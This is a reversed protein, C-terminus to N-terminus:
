SLPYAIRKINLLHRYSVNDSTSGCGQTGCGLTWSLQLNNNAGICGLTAPTNILIRSVDVIRAYEQIAEDNNSHMVATHGAGENNLIGAATRLAQEQNQIRSLSVLPLLKEKMLPHQITDDTDVMSMDAVMLKIPYDRKIGLGECVDQASKGVYDSNLSGKAFLAETVAHLEFHNLVAAGAEIAYEVFKDFIADDVLLNNESGCVVGNDFSKSFVVDKAAKEVDCSQEIWVPANGKGVGIAPTGSQYASAVMSPGGTALIFNLDPHRMFGQTLERSSPMQSTQILDVPLGLEKLKAQMVKVAKLGVNKARRHSSIIVANRSKLAILSKFVLTEVPNTVPIMAFVIGMSQAIGKVGDKEEIVSGVGPQGILDHAVALTGLKIKEVKHEVVGMGSEAVTEKAFTDADDAIVQALAEIAEDIRSELLPQIDLYAQKAKSIMFDVEKIPSSALASDILPQQMLEQPQTLSLMVQEALQTNQTILGLLADRDLVFAHTHEVAVMNVSAVQGSLLERAALIDGTTYRWPLTAQRELQTDEIQAAVQGSALIYCKDTIKGQAILTQGAEIQIAPYSSFDEALIASMDHAAQLNHSTNTRKEATAM